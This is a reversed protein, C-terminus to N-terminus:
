GAPQLMRFFDQYALRTEGRPLGLIMYMSDSISATKSRPDYAWHGVKAIRQANALRKESDRLQQATREIAALKSVHTKQIIVVILGTMAVMTLVFAASILWRDGVTKDILLTVDEKPSVVGISWRNTGLTLATFAVLRTQWTEPMFVDSTAPAFPLSGSYENTILDPLYPGLPHSYVENGSSGHRMRGVIQLFADRSKRPFHSSLDAVQKGLLPGREAGVVVGEDTIVWFFGSRGFTPLDLIDRNLHHLSVTFLLLGAFKNNPHLQVEGQVTYVPKAIVLVDTGNWHRHIVKYATDGTLRARELIPQLEDSSPPSADEPYALQLAGNRDLRFVGEVMEVNMRYARILHLLAENTQVFQVDPIQSLNHLADNLKQFQWRVRQAVQNVAALQSEQFEITRKAVFSQDLAFTVCWILLCFTLAVSIVLAIQAKLNMNQKGV